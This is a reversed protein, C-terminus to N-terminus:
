GEKEIQIYENPLQEKDLESLLHQMYRKFVANFAAADRYGVAKVSGGSRLFRSFQVEGLEKRILLCVMAAQADFVDRTGADLKKWEVASVQFLLDAFFLKQNAHFPEDLRALDRRIQSKTGNLVMMGRTAWFGLNHLKYQARLEHMCVYTLPRPISAAPTDGLLLWLVIEQGRVEGHSRQLGFFRKMTEADSVCFVKCKTRFKINPLGWRELTWGKVEEINKYLYKGQEEDVSLITFNDTEWKNWEQGYSTGVILVSLLWSVFIQKM